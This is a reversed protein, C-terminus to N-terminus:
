TITVVGPDGEALDVTGTYSVIEETTQRPLASSEFEVSGKTHSM